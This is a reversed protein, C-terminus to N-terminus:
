SRGSKVLFFVSFYQTWLNHVLDDSKTDQTNNTKMGDMWSMLVNAGAHRGERTNGLLTAILSAAATL